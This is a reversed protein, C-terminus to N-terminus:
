SDSEEEFGTSSCLPMHCIGCVPNDSELLTSLPVRADCYPCTICCDDDRGDCNCDELRALELILNADVERQLKKISTEYIKLRSDCVYHRKGKRVVFSLPKDIVHHELLIGSIQPIYEETLAKQLAITSTSIVAPIKKDSYINHVTLALIYAHTKGTGVEAECLALKNEQLARLMELSLEKQKVRLNMGHKPLIEDFLYILLEEASKALTVEDTFNGLVACEASRM